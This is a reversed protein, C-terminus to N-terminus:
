TQIEDNGGGDTKLNLAPAPDGVKLDSGLESGLFGLFLATMVATREIGCVRKDHMGKQSIANATLRFLEVANGYVSVIIALPVSADFCVAEDRVKM